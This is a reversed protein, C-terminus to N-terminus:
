KTNHELSKLSSATVRCVFRPNTNDAGAYRYISVEEVRPSGKLLDQAHDRADTGWPVVTMPTWSARHPWRRSKMLCSVGWRQKKLGM